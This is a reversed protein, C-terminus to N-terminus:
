PELVGTFEVNTVLWWIASVFKVVPVSYWKRTREVSALLLLAALLSIVNAVAPSVVGGVTEIVDGAALAVSAPKTVM